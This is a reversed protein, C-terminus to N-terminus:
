ASCRPEYAVEVMRLSVIIWSTLACIYMGKYCAVKYVTCVCVCEYSKLRSEREREREREWKSM